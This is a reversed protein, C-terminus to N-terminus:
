KLKEFDEQEFLTYSFVEGYIEASREILDMVEFHEKDHARVQCGASYAGVKEIENILSETHMNLGSVDKYIKGSYDLEGDKDDDRWVEFPMGKQRLADYKGNHLGMIWCSRYQNPILIATGNINGMKNKLYYLGPKTTGWHLLVKQEGNEEYAVGLIDNWEDVLMDTARIGFLNLNLDGKFFAYNKEKFTKEIKEYTFDELKLKM